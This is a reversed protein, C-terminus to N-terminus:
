YEPTILGYDGDNRKYLVSVKNNEANVFVYFNHDSLEMEGVADDVTIISIDFKKVKVVKGLKAKEEKVENAEENPISVVQRKKDKENLRTKYKIIQKEIKPLIIDINEYMNDTIVEARVIKKDYKLTIEMRYKDQGIKSLQVKATQDNEFFKDLKNIKKEIIEALRNSENYNKNIIEIRM